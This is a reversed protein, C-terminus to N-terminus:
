KGRYKAILTDLKSRLSGDYGMHSFRVIGQRDVVVVYPITTAKYATAAKSASDQLVPFTVGLDKIGKPVVRPAMGGDLNVSFIQVRQGKYKAQLKQLDKLMDRCPMCTFRGFDLVVVSKGKYSSLQYSKGGLTKLTFNPAKTGVSLGEAHAAVFLGAFLAAATVISYSRRM